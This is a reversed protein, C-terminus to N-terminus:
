HHNADIYSIYGPDILAQFNHFIYMRRVPCSRVIALVKM